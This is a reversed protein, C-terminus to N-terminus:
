MAMPDTGRQSRGLAKDPEPKRFRQAHAYPIGKFICTGNWEYGRLAGEKTQVVPYDEQYIFPNM